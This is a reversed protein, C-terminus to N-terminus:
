SIYKLVKSLDNMNKVPINMVEYDLFKFHSFADLNKNLDNLIKEQTSLSVHEKAKIDNVIYEKVIRHQLQVSFINEDNLLFSENVKYVNFSIFDDEYIEFEQYTKDSNDFVVKYDEYMLLAFTYGNSEIINTTKVNLLGLYLDKFSICLRRDIKKYVHQAILFWDVAGHLTIKFLMKSNLENEYLDILAFIREHKM